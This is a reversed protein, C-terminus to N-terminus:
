RHFAVSMKSYVTRGNGTPRGKTSFRLPVIDVMSVGHLGDLMRETMRISPNYVEKTEGYFLHETRETPYHLVALLEDDLHGSPIVLRRSDMEPTDDPLQEFLEKQSMFYDYVRRDTYPWEGM